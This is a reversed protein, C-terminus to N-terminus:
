TQGVGGNATRTRRALFVMAGTMVLLLPALSFVGRLHLCEGLNFISYRQIAVPLNRPESVDILRQTSRHIALRGESNIFVDRCYVNPQGALERNCILGVLWPYFTLLPKVPTVRDASYYPMMPSFMNITLMNSFSVLALPIAVLLTRLTYELRLIIVVFFPIAPILYRPGASAGGDWNIFLANMTVFLGITVTSISFVERERASRGRRLLAPVFLLLVPMFFFLGREASFTVGFLATRVSRMDTTFQSGNSAFYPNIHWNAITFFSGFCIKHYVMFVVLPGLGGLVFRLMRRAQDHVLFRQSLLVATVYLVCSYETLVALGAFLGCYLDARPQNAVRYYLSIVLFATATTHGWLQSSFPFLLTAFYLVVTLWMAKAPTAGLITQLLRFFFAASVAMPIVSIALNLVYANILTPVPAEADIGLARELYYIAAYIPIGLLMPGPAKNSYYDGNYTSWDATNFTKERDVLFRNIRFSLHDDSGPEVFSFIVDYRSLQNTSAGNYFYAYSFFISLSLALANCHRSVFSRIM